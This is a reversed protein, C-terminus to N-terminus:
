KQSLNQLVNYLSTSLNAQFIILTEGTLKRDASLYSYVDFFTVFLSLCM